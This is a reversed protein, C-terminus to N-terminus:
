NDNCVVIDVNRGTIFLCSKVDNDPTSTQGSAVQSTLGVICSRGVLDGVDELVRVVTTPRRVNAPRSHSNLKDM